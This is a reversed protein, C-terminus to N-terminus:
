HAGGPQAEAGSSVDGSSDNQWYSQERVYSPAYYANSKRLQQWAAARGKTRGHRHDSAAAAQATLAAVLPVVLLTLFKRRM